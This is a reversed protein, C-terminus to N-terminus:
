RFPRFLNSAEGGIIAAAKLLATRAHAYRGDPPNVPIATLDPACLAIIEHQLTTAKQSPTDAAGLMLDYFYDCNVPHISVPDLLDLSHEISSSWCGLRQDRYFLEQWPIAVPHELRWRAWERLSYASARTGFFTTFRMMLRDPRELIEELSLGRLRQHFYKRGLEWCGSRILWNQPGLNEYVGRAYLHRDGDAVCGYTHRDYEDLKERLLKGSAVYRHVISRAASIAAPLLVDAKSIRPHELTLTYFPIGSAQLVSFTTRSDLGGTLTLILSEQNGQRSMARFVRALGRTLKDAADNLSIGSLPSLRNFFKVSRSGPDYIQDPLLRRVGDLKCLPGPFWNFGYWGFIRFDRVPTFTLQSLLALSGSVFIGKDDELVYVGLLGGADTILASSSILLWRGSWTKVLAPVDDTRSRIISAIPDHPPEAVVEFAHGLLAWRQGSADIATTLNLWPSHYLFFGNDLGVSFWGKPVDIRANSFVFQRRHIRSTGQAEPEAGM